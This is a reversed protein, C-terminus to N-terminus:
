SRVAEKRDVTLYDGPRRFRASLSYKIIDYDFCKTYSKQPIEEASFDGGAASVTCLIKKNTGPAQDGRYGSSWRMLEPM